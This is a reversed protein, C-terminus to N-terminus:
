DEGTLLDLYDDSLFLSPISNVCMLKDSDSWGLISPHETIPDRVLTIHSPRIFDVFHPIGLSPSLGFNGAQIADKIWARTRRTLATEPLGNVFCGFNETIIADFGGPLTIWIYELEDPFVRAIM